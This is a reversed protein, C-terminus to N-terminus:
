LIFKDAVSPILRRKLTSGGMDEERPVWKEGECVEVKKTEREVSRVNERKVGM